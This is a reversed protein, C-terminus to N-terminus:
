TEMIGNRYSAIETIVVPISHDLPEVPVHECILREPCALIAPGDYASLFRDYYGGGHGLREGNITCTVCPVIVVDIETPSVLEATNPPEPIGYHGEELQSLDEIRRAEMVGPAICLPVALHKGDALVRQLFPNIDAEGPTSVFAMVTRAAHYEPCSFLQKSIAEGAMRFYSEPIHSRIERIKRRLTAKEKVLQM